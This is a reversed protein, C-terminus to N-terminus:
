SLSLLKEFSEMPDQNQFIASTVVFRKAGEKKATILTQENIGGDIEIPIQTIKRLSKIKGLVEPLFEQGSKGAKVGMLLITDIDEFNISILEVSTDIDLALGVEGFIQGEAVFEELNDMKEIHGLFRKFGAEALQKVYQSPNEVMLHAELFFDNKYKSFQSFDMFSIEPSFKGDLFDIHVKKSFPKI